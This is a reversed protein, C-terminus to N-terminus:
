LLGSVPVGAMGAVTMAGAIEGIEFLIPAFFSNEMRAPPRSWPADQNALDAALFPVLGGGVFGEGAAEVNRSTNSLFKSLGEPKADQKEYYDDAIQEQEDSTPLDTGLVADSIPKVVYDNMLSGDILDKAAEGVATIPGRQKPQPMPIDAAAAEEEKKLEEQVKEEVNQVEELRQQHAEEAAKRQDLEYQSEEM